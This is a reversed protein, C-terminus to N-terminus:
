FTVRAPYANVVRIQVDKAYTESGVNTVRVGVRYDLAEKIDNQNTEWTGNGNRFQIWTRWTLNKQVFEDM